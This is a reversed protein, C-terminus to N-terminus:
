SLTMWATRMASRRKSGNSEFLDAMKLGLEGVIDETPCGAHCKLLVRGDDGETVSLSPTKDEHAPCAWNGGSHRCGHRELATVLRDMASSM